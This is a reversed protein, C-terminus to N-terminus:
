ARLTINKEELAKLVNEIIKDAEENEMTGDNRRFVLKYSLSKKGDSVQEGKYM